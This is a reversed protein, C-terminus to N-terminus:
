RLDLLPAARVFGELSRVSVRRRAASMGRGALVCGAETSPFDGPSPGRQLSPQAPSRQAERKTCAWADSPVIRARSTPGQVERGREQCGVRLTLFKPRAPNMKLVSSTQASAFRLPNACARAIQPIVRCHRGSSALGAPCIAPTRDALICGPTRLTHRESGYTGRGQSCVASGGSIKFAYMLACLNLRSTSNETVM